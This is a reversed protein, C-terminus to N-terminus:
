DAYRTWPGTPIGHHTPAYWASGDSMVRSVVDPGHSIAIVYPKAAADTPPAPETAGSTNPSVDHVLEVLELEPCTEHIISRGDRAYWCQNSCLLPHHKTNDDYMITHTDGTRDRWTQGVFLPPKAVNPTAPTAAEGAESVLEILDLDDMGGDSHYSGSRTFWEWKDCRCPYTDTGDDEVITHLDGKRDRWVQGVCLEPKAAESTGNSADSVLTILDLSTVRGAWCHGDPTYSVSDTGAANHVCARIPYTPNVQDTTSEIVAIRNDRTLWSQGVCLQPEAVESAGPSVDCVLETLDNHSCRRTWETGALTYSCGTDATVPFRLPYATGDPYTATLQVGTIRHTTGKRDRWLQGVRIPPKTTSPSSM